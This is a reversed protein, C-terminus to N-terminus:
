HSHDGSYKEKIDKYRERSVPLIDGNTLAAEYKGGGYVNIKQILKSDVIYSKHIRLFSEPLVLELQQLTKSHLHSKGNSLKIEVYDDCKKLITIDSIPLLTIEGRERVSLYKAANRREHLNQLRSLAKQMREKSYPKVVYDLVGYEFAKVAHEPNASVIITEFSGAVAHELMKFGDQGHLNLDLFLVDIERDFIYDIGEDLTDKVQLRQIEDGLIERIVHELRKAAMAEDEVILIKM